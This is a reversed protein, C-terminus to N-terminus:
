SQFIINGFQYGRLKEKMYIAYDEFDEAFFKKCFESNEFAYESYDYAENTFYAAVEMDKFYLRHLRAILLSCKYAYEIERPQIVQQKQRQDILEYVYHFFNVAESYNKNRLAACAKKFGSRYNEKDIAWMSDYYFWAAKDKREIELYHALTYDVFNMYKKGTEKLIAKKLYEVGYRWLYNQGIGIQGALVLGMSYDQNLLNLKEAENMIMEQDFVPMQNRCRCIDNIKRACNLMAFYVYPLEESVYDNKKYERLEQYCKFYVDKLLSTIEEEKLQYFFCHKYYNKHLYDTRLFIDKLKQFDLRMDDNISYLDCVKDVIESLLEEIVISSNEATEVEISRASKPYVQAVMKKSLYLNLDTRNTDTQPSINNVVYEQVYIGCFKFFELVSVSLVVQDMRRIIRVSYFNDKMQMSRLREEASMCDLDNCKRLVVVADFKM